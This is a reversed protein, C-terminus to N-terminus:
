DSINVEQQRELDKILVEDHMRAASQAAAKRDPLFTKIRKVALALGCADSCYKSRSRASRQCGPGICQKEEEDSLDKEAVPDGGHAQSVGSKKKPRGPKNGLKQSPPHKKPMHIKTPKPKQIVEEIGVDLEEDEEASSSSKRSKAQKSLANLFFNFDADDDDDSIRPATPKKTPQHYTPPPPHQTELQKRVAGEDPRKKKIKEDPPLLMPQLTKAKKKPEGSEVGEKGLHIKTPKPLQPNPAPIPNDQQDKITSTPKPLPPELKPPATAPSLKVSTSELKSSPEIVQQKPVKHEGKPLKSETKPLKSETKPMKSETKPTKSETKPIKSDVKPIKSDVKPIKPEGKPIKFSMKEMDPIKPIKQKTDDGRLLSKRFEERKAQREQIKKLRRVEEKEREKKKSEKPKRERDSGDSDSDLIRQPKKIEKKKKEKHRHKSGGEEDVRPPAKTKWVTKLTPDKASILLPNSESCICYKEEEPVNSEMVATESTLSM